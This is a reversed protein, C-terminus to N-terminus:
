VFLQWDDVYNGSIHKPYGPDARYSVVDYRVHQDERFFYVKGNGWYIAADIKDFNVGVWRENILKPYGDDVKNERVNFRVYHRGSFLYVSDPEFHLAADIREFTVGPWGQAIQRPDSFEGTTLDLVTYQSRLFFYVKNSLRSQEKFGLYDGSLTSDIHNFGLSALQPWKSKITKPKNSQAKEVNYSSYHRDRIFYVDHEICFVASLPEFATAAKYATMLATAKEQDEILSWIGAVELEIAQPNDKITKMWANYHDQDLSNLAGLKMADGGKGAVTCESNNLLSQKNQMSKASAEGNAMGGYSAKLASSIQDKSINASKLVSLTLTARGGVWVRKVYHSGFRQFFREYIKRHQHKFPVPVDMDFSNEALKSVDGVYISWFPIFSTRTAYYASADRQLMSSHSASADVNFADPGCSVTAELSSSKDLREMSEEIVVRNLAVGTPMPPSDNVNYGDPLSYTMDSEASYYPAFNKQAFVRNKLEYPRRARLFIGRGVVDLGPMPFPQESDLSM